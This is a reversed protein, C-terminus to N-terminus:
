AAVLQTCGARGAQSRRPNSRTATCFLLGYSRTEWPQLGFLQHRLSPPLGPGCAPSPEARRHSELGKGTGEGQAACPHLTQSSGVLAVNSFPPPSVAPPSVTCTSSMSGTASWTEHVLSCTGDSGKCGFFCVQGGALPAHSLPAKSRRIAIGLWM